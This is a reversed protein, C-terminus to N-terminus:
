TRDELRPADQGEALLTVAQGLQLNVVVASGTTSVEIARMDPVCKRALTTAAAIVDAMTPYTLVPEEGPSPAVMFPEARAIRALIAIPDAMAFIEEAVYSRRKNPTGKARGGVKVHGPAFRTAADSV